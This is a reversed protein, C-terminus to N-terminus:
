SNRIAKSQCAFQVSLPATQIVSSFCLLILLSVAQSKTRLNKPCVKLIWHCFSTRLPRHLKHRYLAAVHSSNGLDLSQTPATQAPFDEPPPLYNPPIQSSNIEHTLVDRLLPTLDSALSRLYEASFQSTCTPTTSTPAAESLAPVATNEARDSDVLCRLLTDRSGSLSLNQQALLLQLVETSLDAYNTASSTTPEAVHQNGNSTMVTNTNKRCQQRPCTSRRKNSQKPM